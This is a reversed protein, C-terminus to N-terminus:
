YWPALPLDEPEIRNDISASLTVIHPELYSNNTSKTVSLVSFVSYPAWLFEAERDGFQSSEIYNV